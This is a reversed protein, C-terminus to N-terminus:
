SSVALPMSWRTKYNIRLNIEVTTATATNNVFYVHWYWANNPNGGVLGAFDDESIVQSAPVGFVEHTTMGAKHKWTAPGGPVLQSFAVHKSGLMQNVGPPGNVITAILYATCGAAGTNMVALEVQSSLVRYRNYLLSIKSYHFATYGVGTYDPDYVSNGRWSYYAASSAAVNIAFAAGYPMDTTFQDTLGVPNSTLGYAKKSSVLAGSSARQGQGGRRSRQRRRRNNNSLKPGM